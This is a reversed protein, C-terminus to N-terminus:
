RVRVVCDYVALHRGDSEALTQRLQADRGSQRCYKEAAENSDEMRTGAYRVQVTSADASVIEGHSACGALGAAMLTGVIVIRSRM